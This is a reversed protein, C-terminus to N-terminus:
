LDLARVVLSGAAGCVKTHTYIYDIEGCTRYWINIVTQKTYICM